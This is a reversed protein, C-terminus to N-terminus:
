QNTIWVFRDSSNPYSSNQLLIRKHENLKENGSKNNKEQVFEKLFTVTQAGTDGQEDGGVNAFSDDPLGERWGGDVGSTAGLKLSCDNSEEVQQGGSLVLDAGQPFGEVPLVQGIQGIEKSCDQDKSHNDVELYFQDCFSM